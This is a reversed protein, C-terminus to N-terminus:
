DIRADLARQLGKSLYDALPGKEMMARIALEKTAIQKNLYLHLEHLDADDGRGFYMLTRLKFVTDEPLTMLYLRLAQKAPRPVTALDAADAGLLDAVEDAIGAEGRVRAGELKRATAKAIVEQVVESFKM